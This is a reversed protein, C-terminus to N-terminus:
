WARATSWGPGRTSRIMRRRHPRTSPKTTQALHPKERVALTFWEWGRLERVAGQWRLTAAPSVPQLQASTSSARGCARGRKEMKTRASVDAGVARCRSMQEEVLRKVPRQAPPGDPAHGRNRSSAGVLGLRVALWPVVDCHFLESATPTGTVVGIGRGGAATAGQHCAALLPTAIRRVGVVTM